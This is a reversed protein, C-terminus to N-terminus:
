IPVPYFLSSSPPFMRLYLYIHLTCLFHYRGFDRSSMILLNTQEGVFFVTRYSKNIMSKKSIKNRIIIHIAGQLNAVLSLHGYFLFYYASSHAITMM